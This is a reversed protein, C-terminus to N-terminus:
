SKKNFTPFVLSRSGRNAEVIMTGWAPHDRFSDRLRANDALGAREILTEDSLVPTGNKWAQWLAMVVAAQTATFFYQTGNWDVSRFDESHRPADQRDEGENLEESHRDASLEALMELGSRTISLSERAFLLGKVRQDLRLLKRKTVIEDKIENGVYAHLEETKENQKFAFCIYGPEIPDPWFGYVDRAKESQLLNVRVLFRIDRVVQQRTGRIGLEIFYDPVPSVTDYNSKLQVTGGSADTAEWGEWRDAVDFEFYKVLRLLQNQQDTLHIGV